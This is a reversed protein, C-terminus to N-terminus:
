GEELLRRIHTMMQDREVDITHNRVTNLGNRVLRHRLKSDCALREVAECIAKSSATGVLLGSEGHEILHPIGAVRTAIIPVGFAMAEFLTQPFGEGTLSPLIFIDSERYLRLLEPGHAVYGLFQVHETLQCEEVKTRLKREEDDRIGKGVIRLVADLRKHRILEEFAEILFHVGKEADLRGVNLLRMPKHLECNKIRITDEIDRESVLSVSIQHVQSGKRHYANYMEEGVTFTLCNEALRQFIHELVVAVGMAFIKKVGRNRHRVQETLNQRVVLFFPKGCKRCAYALLLSVPHPTHLWVIDWQHISHNVVRYIKFFTILMNKWFSYISFYPLPCVETTTSDLVYAQTETEEVVADCFIIKHFCPSFSAVFKIFAEDTSYNKSDFWFYQGSFVALKMEDNVM